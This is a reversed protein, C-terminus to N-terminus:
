SPGEQAFSRRFWRRFSHHYALYSTRVLLAQLRAFSVTVKRVKRVCFLVSNESQRKVGSQNDEGENNPTIPATSVSLPHRRAHARLLPLPVAFACVRCRYQNGVECQFEVGEVAIDTKSELLAPGVVAKAANMICEERAVMRVIIHRLEALVSVRNKGFQYVRNTAVAEGTEAALLVDLFISYRSM